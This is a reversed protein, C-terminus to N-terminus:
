RSAEFKTVALEHPHARWYRGVERDTFSASFFKTMNACAFTKVSGTM